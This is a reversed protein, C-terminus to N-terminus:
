MSSGNQRHAQTAHNLNILNHDRGGVFALVKGTANEIMMAGVQVPDDKLTPNGDDDLDDKDEVTYTHGYHEFNSAVENLKDYLDLDVTAQIRYGDNMLSRKALIMYKERIRAEDAFRNPDVGDNEAII